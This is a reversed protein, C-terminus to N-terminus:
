FMSKINSSFGISLKVDRLWQCMARREDITLHYGMGPLDVKWNQMCPQPHLDDRIGLNILDMQLKLGVKMRKKIDLLINIMSEFVNKELHMCDIAHPHTLYKETQCTSSSFQSRRKLFSSLHNRRSIESESGQQGRQRKRRKESSSRMWISSWLSFM